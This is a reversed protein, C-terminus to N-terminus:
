HKDGSHFPTSSKFSKGMTIVVIGYGEKSVCVCLQKITSISFATLWVNKHKQSSSYIALLCYAPFQPVKLWVVILLSWQYPGKHHVSPVKCKWSENSYHVKSNIKPWNSESSHCNITCWVLVLGCCVLGMKSCQVRIVLTICERGGGMHSSGFFSCPRCPTLHITTVFHSRFLM